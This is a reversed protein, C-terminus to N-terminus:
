VLVVTYDIVERGGLVHFRELGIRRLIDSRGLSRGGRGLALLPSLAQHRNPRRLGYQMICPFQLYLSLAGVRPSKKHARLARSNGIIGEENRNKRSLRLETCFLDNRRATVKTGDARGSEMTRDPSKPGMGQFVGQGACSELFFRRANEVRRRGPPPAGPVSM